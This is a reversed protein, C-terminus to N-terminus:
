DCAAIDTRRSVARDVSGLGTEICLSGATADVDVLSVVECQTTDYGAGTNAVDGERRAARDGVLVGRGFAYTILVEDAARDAQGCAAANTTRCCTGINVSGRDTEVCM